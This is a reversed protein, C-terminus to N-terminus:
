RGASSDTLARRDLHLVEVDPVRRTDGGLRQPVRLAFAESGSALQGRSRRTSRRRGAHRGRLAVCHGGSTRATREAAPPRERLVARLVGLGRVLTLGGAIAMAGRVNGLAPAMWGIAPAGIPTTGLFLVGYLAMVRGRMRPDSRLQLLSNASAVFVITAM